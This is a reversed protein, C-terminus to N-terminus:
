EFMRMRMRICINITQSFAFAELSLACWIFEMIMEIQVFYARCVYESAIEVAIIFSFKSFSFIFLLLEHCVCTVFAYLNLASSLIRCRTPNEFHSNFFENLQGTKANFRM